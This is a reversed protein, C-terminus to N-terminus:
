GGKKQIKAWEDRLGVTRNFVLAGPRSDTDVCYYGLREFQYRDGPAADRLSPEVVCDTLVELSEPNLSDRFDQDSAGPNADKFLYDYLRVKAPLGHAASVWHLTAKVKRRDPARGGRTEPDYSCRLLTVAGTQPDKELGTCTAM